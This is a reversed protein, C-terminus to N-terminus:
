RIGSYKVQETYSGGYITESGYETTLNELSSYSSSGNEAGGNTSTATYSESIQKTATGMVRRVGETTVDNTSTNQHALLGNHGISTNIYSGSEGSYYADRIRYEDGETTTKSGSVVGTNDVNWGSSNLAYGSADTVTNVETSSLTGHTVSAGNTESWTTGVRLQHTIEPFSLASFSFLVLISAIYRM